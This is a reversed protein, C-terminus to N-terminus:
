PTVELRWHREAGGGWCDIEGGNEEVSDEYDDLAVVETMLDDIDCGLASASLVVTRDELQSTKIADGVAATIKDTTTM